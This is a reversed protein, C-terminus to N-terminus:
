AYRIIFVMFSAPTTHSHNSDATTANVTPTGTHAHGTDATTVSHAPTGHDHNVATANNTSGTHGHASGAGTTNNAGSNPKFYGHSHTAENSNTLVLHSHDIGTSTNANHNHSHGTSAHNNLTLGITHTHGSSQTNGTTLVLSPSTTQRSGATNLTSTGIPIYSSNLKPVYFLTSSGGYMYQIVSFLNAYTGTTAFGAGNCVVYGTPLSSTLGAWMIVSGIPPVAAFETNLSSATLIQGAVYSSM